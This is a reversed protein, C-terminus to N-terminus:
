VPGLRLWDVHVHPPRSAVYLIADAVDSPRLMADRPPFGPRRDPDFPDWIATDTPGPSVLTLRLGSGRYEAVLTEHLGRVGYKSAAYAANEPFGTHDAVSGVTIFAGRGASRMPPLFGRAVAFPARLNAALQRDFEEITTSELARLLFGGANSVVIDPPGHAEVVRVALAAVEASDTLDCRIDYPGEAAGQALSRAVRIVRAGAGAFAAATAAGIGRSAGTVLALRGALATM